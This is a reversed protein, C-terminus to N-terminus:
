WIYFEYDVENYWKILVIVNYAIDKLIDISDNYKLLIKRALCNTDQTM